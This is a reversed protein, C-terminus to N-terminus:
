SDSFLRLIEDAVDEVSRGDTDVDYEAAARYLPTRAELVEEIEELFSKAGTLSPRGADDHIRAVITDPRAKLWFLRGKAKLAAVNEPRTVVGGGTAIVLEDQASLDWCIESEVDRFREWGEKAVFEHIPMGVAQVIETDMDVATRGTKQALHNAVCSKGTGRYGILVINM